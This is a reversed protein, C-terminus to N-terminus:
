YEGSRIICTIHVYLLSRSIDFLDEDFLSHFICISEIGFVWYLNNCLASFCNCSFFMIAYQCREILASYYRKQYPGILRYSSGHVPLIHHLFLNHPFSKLPLVVNKPWRLTKLQQNCVRVPELNSRSSRIASCCVTSRCTPCNNRGKQMWEDVCAQHFVHRCKM